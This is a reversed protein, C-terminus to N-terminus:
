ENEEKEERFVFRVVNLILAEESPTLEVRRNTVMATTNSITRLTQPLNIVIQNAKKNYNFSFGNDTVLM